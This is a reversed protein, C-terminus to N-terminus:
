PINPLATGNVKEKKCGSIHRGGIIKRRLHKEGHFYDGFEEPRNAGVNCAAWKLGDGMEVFEHGSIYNYTQDKIGATMSVALILVLHIIFSKM